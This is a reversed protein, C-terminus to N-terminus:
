SNNESFPHLPKEFSHKSSVSKPNIFYFLNNLNHNTDDARTANSLLHAREHMCVHVCARFWSRTHKHTVCASMCLRLCMPGSTHTPRVCAHVCLCLGKRIPKNLRPQSQFGRAATTPQLYAGVVAQCLAPSNQGSPPSLCIERLCRSM